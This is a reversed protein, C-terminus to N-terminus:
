GGRFLDRELRGSTHGAEAASAQKGTDTAENHLRRQPKKSGGSLNGSGPVQTLTFAVCFCLSNCAAGDSLGRIVRAVCGAAGSDKPTLSSRWSGATEPRQLAM